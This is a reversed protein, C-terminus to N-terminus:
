PYYQTPVSGESKNSSRFRPCQAMRSLAYPGFWIDTM